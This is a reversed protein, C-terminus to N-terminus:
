KSNTTTTLAMEMFTLPTQKFWFGEIQNRNQCVLCFSSQLRWSSWRQKVHWQPLSLTKLVACIIPIMSHVCGAEMKPYHLCNKLCVHCLLYSGILLHSKTESLLPLSVSETLSKFEGEGKSCHSLGESALCHSFHHQSLTLPDDCVYMHWQGVHRLGKLLGQTKMQWCKSLSTHSCCHNNWTNEVSLCENECQHRLHPKVIEHWVVSVCM